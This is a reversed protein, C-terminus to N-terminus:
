AFTNLKQYHLKSQLSQNTEEPIEPADEHSEEESEADEGQYAKEGDGADDELPAFNLERIEREAIPTPAFATLTNAKSPNNAVSGEVEELIQLLEKENKMEQAKGDRVLKEYLKGPDKNLNVEGGSIKEDGTKVAKSMLGLKDCIGRKEGEGQKEGAFCDVVVIDNVLPELLTKGSLDLYNQLLQSLYGKLTTITTMDKSLALRTGFRQNKYDM